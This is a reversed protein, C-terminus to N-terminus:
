FRTCKDIDDNTQANQVCRLMSDTIRKGPCEKLDDKMEGRMSQERKAIEIPDTIHVSRLQVEVYRNFILDCDAATARRGCGALLLALLLSPAAISLSLLPAKRACPIARARCTPRM